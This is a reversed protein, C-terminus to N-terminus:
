TTGTFNTIIEVEKTTITIKSNTNVTATITVIHSIATAKAKISIKTIKNAKATRITGEKIKIDKNDRYRNNGVMIAMVM